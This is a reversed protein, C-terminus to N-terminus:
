NYSRPGIVRVLVINPVTLPIVHANVGSPSLKPYVNCLHVHGHLYTSVASEKGHLGETRSLTTAGLEEDQERDVPSQVEEWYLPLRRGWGSLSADHTHSERTLLICTSTDTGLDWSADHKQKGRKHETMAM